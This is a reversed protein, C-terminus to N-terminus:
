LFFMNVHIARSVNGFEALHARLSFPPDVLRKAFFLLPLGDVTVVADPTICLVFSRSIYVGRLSTTSNSARTM